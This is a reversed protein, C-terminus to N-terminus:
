VVFLKFCHGVGVPTIIILSFGDRRHQPLCRNGERLSFFHTMKWGMSDYFIGDPMINSVHCRCTLGAERAKKGSYNFSTKYYCSVPTFVTITTALSSEPFM